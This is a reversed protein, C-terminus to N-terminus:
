TARRSPSSCRLRARRTAAESSWWPRQRRLGSGRARHGLLVRRRRRLARPRRHPPTPLARGIRDRSCPGPARQRRHAHARPLGGGRPARHGRVARQTTRRPARGAGSCARGARRGRDRQPLGRLERHALEDRGPRRDGGRRALDHEARRVRRVGRGGARGAGHRRRRPRVPRGPQPLDDRAGARPRRSVTPGPAHGPDPRVPRGIRRCRCQDPVGVPRRPRRPRDLHAPTTVPERVLATGARRGLLPERHDPDREAGEGARLVGRRALFARFVIDSFEPNRSMLRRFDVQAVEVVRGDTHMRATMLPRQGMLLGLEGLFSGPGWQAIRVDTVGARVVEVEGDVVAFFSCNDAGADYLVTGAPLSRETGVQALEALMGADLTADTPNVEAPHADGTAM